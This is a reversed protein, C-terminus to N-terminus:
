RIHVGSLRQHHAATQKFLKAAQPRAELARLVVVEGQPHAFDGPLDAVQGVNKIVPAAEPTRGGEGTVFFGVAELGAEVGHLRREFPPATRALGKLGVPRPPAAVADVLDAERVGARRDGHDNGGMVAGIQQLATQFRQAFGGITIVPDQHDIVFVVLRCRPLVKLPQLM